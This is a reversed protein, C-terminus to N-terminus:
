AGKASAATESAEIAKVEETIDIGVPCWTICRGCGTCGSRGFQDHWSALKHTIWQRYRAAGERRIPGGHIYSFDVTFCSDWRRWREATAGDLSTSDEVTSCFCTPCVLTCNACNLCRQAVDLWRPHEPHERLLRAAESPMRREIAATATEARQAAASLDEQSVARHPTESLIDRGIASGAHALFRQAQADSLETLCLDYADDASPGSGMSACFCTAAPRNCNVAIILSSQRRAKYGPDCFDGNDFVRDQIAMGALECPRVGFFVRKPAEPPEAEIRFGTTQRHARWLRQQPPFLYRKWSHPGVVYRFLSNSHPDDAPLKRLRYHGGSQEDEYGLPLEDLSEFPAYVIAERALKPGILEFGRSRLKDLLEQLNEITLIGTDPM